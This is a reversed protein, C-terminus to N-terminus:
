QTAMLNGFWMSHSMTAMSRETRLRHMEWRGSVTGTLASGDAKLNFTTTMTQGDRGQMEATWKGNVDAAFAAVAMLCSLLAVRLKM